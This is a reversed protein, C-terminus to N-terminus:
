KEPKSSSIVAIIQKIGDFIRNFREERIEYVLNSLIAEQKIPDHIISNIHEALFPKVDEPASCLQEVFDTRNDLIYVIDEFDNSTRPDKSGRDNFACFKSAILYSLPLIQIRQDEIKVTEKKEFGPAFWPNAPAWGVTKTSM